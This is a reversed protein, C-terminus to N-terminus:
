LINYVLLSLRKPIIQLSHVITLCEQSKISRIWSKQPNQSKTWSLSVTRYAKTKRLPNVWSELIRERLWNLSVDWSFINGEIKGASFRLGRFCSSQCHLNVALQPFPSLPLQSLSKSLQYISPGWCYQTRTFIYFYTWTTWPYIKPKNNSYISLIQSCVCYKSGCRSGMIHSRSTPSPQASIFKLGVRAWLHCTGM